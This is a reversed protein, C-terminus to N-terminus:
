GPTVHTRYAVPQQVCGCTLHRDKSGRSGESAPTSSNRRSLSSSTMHPPGGPLPAPKLRPRQCTIRMAVGSPVNIPFIFSLTLLCAWALRQYGSTVVTTGGASQSLCIHSATEGWWAKRDALHSLWAAPQPLLLSPCSCAPYNVRIGLLLCRPWPQFRIQLGAKGQGGSDIEPGEQCCRRLPGSHRSSGASAQGVLSYPEQGAWLAAGPACAESTRQVESRENAFYSSYNGM